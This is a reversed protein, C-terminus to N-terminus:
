PLADMLIALGPNDAGRATRGTTFAFEALAARADPREALSGLFAEWEEREDADLTACWLAFEFLEPGDLHVDGFLERQLRRDPEVWLAFHVAAPAAAPDFRAEPWRVIAAEEDWTGNTAVPRVGPRLRVEVTPRGAPIREAAMWEGLPGLPSTYLELEVGAAEARTLRSRFAPTQVYWGQFSATLTSTDRLVDLETPIPDTPGAGMRAALVRRTLLLLRAPSADLEEVALWWEPVDDPRLVGREVLSQAARALAATARAEGGPEFRTSSLHLLVNRLERRADGDIWTLLEDAGPTGRLEASLWGLALDATEDAVSEIREIRAWADGPGGFREVWAHAAGLPSSWRRHHGAGHFEAPTAGTFAARFTAPDGPWADGYIAGLRELEADPFAVASAESGDVSWLSLSREIGAGEPRLELVYRDHKCSAGALALLLIPVLPRM